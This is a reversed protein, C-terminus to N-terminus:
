SRARGGGMVFRMTEPDAQLPALWDVDGESLPALAVGAPFVFPGIVWVVPVM